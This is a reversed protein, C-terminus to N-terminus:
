GSYLHNEPGLLIDLCDLEDIALRLGLKVDFHIGGKVPKCIGLSHQKQAIRQLSAWKLAGSLTGQPIATNTDHVAGIHGHREFHNSAQHPTGIIDIIEHFNRNLDSSLM